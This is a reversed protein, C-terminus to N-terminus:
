TNTWYLTKFVLRLNNRLCSVQNEQNLLVREKTLLNLSKTKSHCVKKFHNQFNLYEVTKSLPNMKLKIKAWGWTMKFTKKIKSKNKVEPGMRGKSSTRTSSNTKMKKLQFWEKLLITSRQTNLNQQDMEKKKIQFTNTKWRIWNLFNLPAYGMM